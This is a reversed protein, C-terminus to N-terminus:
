DRYPYLGTLAICYNIALSPQMNNHPASAGAKALTDPKLYTDPVKTTAYAFNTTSIATASDAVAALVAGAPNNTSGPASNAMLAHTHSPIQDRLAVGEVGGPAGQPSASARHLMTRGRLDPLNFTRVGDGGYITGLLSFLANHQAISLTQGDCTAWGKPAFGFSFLRVEGIFSEAM